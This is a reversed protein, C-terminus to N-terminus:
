PLREPLQMRSETELGLPRILREHSQVSATEARALTVVTSAYFAQERAQKLKSWNGVQAMRRGLEAGAEAADMVQRMYRVTEDAAIAIFYAKRTEAALRLIELTIETRTKEFLRQEIGARMPMTLMQLLFVHLAADSEVEDGRTLRGLTVRPNPLTQTQVWNAEAIGLRYFTAQLAPNNLLAIQVANDASLPQALLADIRAQTQKRSADDHTWVVDQQIRSQTASQIAEFGGDPSLSACGGLLAASLLTLTRLTFPPANM